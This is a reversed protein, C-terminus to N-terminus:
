EEWNHYVELVDDLDELNNIILSMRKDQEENLKVYTTPILQIEAQEFELGQKELGERVDSFDEPSTTIEYYEETGEFDEAGLDITQLMLDEEGLKCSM